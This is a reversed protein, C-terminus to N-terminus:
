LHASKLQKGKNRLEPIWLTEFIETGCTEKDKLKKLHRLLEM